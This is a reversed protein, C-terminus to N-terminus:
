NHIVIDKNSLLIMVARANRPCIVAWHLKLLQLETGVDADLRMVGTSNREFAIRITM